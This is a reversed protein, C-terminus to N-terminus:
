DFEEYWNEISLGIERWTKCWEENDHWIVGKCTKLEFM